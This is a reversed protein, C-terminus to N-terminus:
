EKGGGNMAPSWGPHPRGAPRSCAADRDAGGKGSLAGRLGLIGEFAVPLLFRLYGSKISKKVNMSHRELILNVVGSAGAYHPHATGSDATSNMEPSESPACLWRSAPGSWLGQPAQEPDVWTWGCASCIGAFWLPISLKPAATSQDNRSSIDLREGGLNLGGGRGQSAGDARFGAPNKRELPRGLCKHVPAGFRSRTSPARPGRSGNRESEGHARL